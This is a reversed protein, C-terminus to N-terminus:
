MPTELTPGDDMDEPMERNANDLATVEQKM